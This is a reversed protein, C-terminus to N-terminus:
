RSRRQGHPGTKRKRPIGHRRLWYHVTLVSCSAGQAIQKANRGRGWYEAELWEKDALRPYKTGRPRTEVGMERFREGVTTSSVGFRRAVEELTLGSQYVHVADTSLEVSRRDGVPRSKGLERAWRAVTQPTLGTGVEERVRSATERCSLGSEYLAIAHRRIREPHM